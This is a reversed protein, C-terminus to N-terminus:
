REAHIVEGVARCTEVGNQDYAVLIFHLPAKNSGRNWYIHDILMDVWGHQEVYCQAHSFIYRHGEGIAVYKWERGIEVWGGHDDHHAGNVGLRLVEYRCLTKPAPTLFFGCTADPTFEFNVDYFDTRNYVKAGLVTPSALLIGAIILAIMLPLNRKVTEAYGMRM